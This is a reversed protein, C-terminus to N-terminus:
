VGVMMMRNNHIMATTRNCSQATGTREDIAHTNTHAKREAFQIM